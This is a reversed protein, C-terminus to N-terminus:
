GLFRRKIKELEALAEKMSIRDSSIEASCKFALEFISAASELIKEGDEIDVNAVLNADIVRYASQPVSSRIWSVSFIEDSGTTAVGRRRYRLFCLITTLAVAGALIFMAREIKKGKSRSGSVVECPQVNFRPIGCLAVNGKFSDMTFNVFPGGTPIEGSLDNFSVNFSHLYQLAQLSKPLSGSLNNFSVDLNELGLMSGISVPISGELGNRALSLVVLNRLSGITSPISEALQNISLNIYIAAALKDVEPPLFGTLSNVSLDLTLLDKLSWIGLPISSTFMNSNLSLRRLSTVNGLCQPISGSLKNSSLDLDSLSHLGCLDDTVSGSLSNNDLFLGQLNLLHKVTLPINGSLYNSGLPVRILNTLNGIEDPIRGKLGCYSAAFRELHSSLNGISSPLTGNFLNGSILLTTLFRCNTLSTIFGLELSSSGTIINNDIINLREIFTLSGLSHPVLGTLKNASLDLDMLYSCNSISEPIRGSLSNGGVYLLNLFPIGSCFNTPLAGSLGNGSLALSTLTSINFIEYPITGSLM